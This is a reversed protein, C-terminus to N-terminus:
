EYYLLFSWFYAFNHWQLKTDTGECKMIYDLGLIFPLYLLLLFIFDNYYRDHQSHGNIWPEREAYICIYVYMIYEYM